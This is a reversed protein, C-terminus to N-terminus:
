TLPGRERSPEALRGRLSVTSHGKAMCAAMATTLLRDVENSIRTRSEPGHFYEDDLVSTVLSHVTEPLQCIADVNRIETNAGPQLGFADTRSRVRWYFADALQNFTTEALWPVRESGHKLYFDDYIPLGAGAIARSELRSPSIAEKVISWGLNV